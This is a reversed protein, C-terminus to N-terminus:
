EDKKQLETLRKEMATLENKLADIETELYKTEDTASYQPVAYNPYTPYQFGRDYGFGRRFGGGRGYGRGFGFGAGGRPVGKTFGPSDYGACYGLGRGTMQGMGNPGTRDGRPMKVEKNKPLVLNDVKGTAAM